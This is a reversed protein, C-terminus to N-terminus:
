SAYEKSTQLSLNPSEIEPQSAALEDILRQMRQRLTELEGPRAKMAMLAMTELAARSAGACRIRRRTQRRMVGVLDLRAGFEEDFREEVAQRIRKAMAPSAGGTSVSVVMEGRRLISPYIFDCYEPDDVCNVLLGREHGLHYIRHNLHPDDTAAIVFSVGDLDSEEFRRRSVSVGPYSEIAKLVFPAVVHVGIGSPTLVSVKQLAINGGGVVLCCRGRVCLNIPLTQM